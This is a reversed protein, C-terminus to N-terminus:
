SRREYGTLGGNKEELETCILEVGVQKCWDALYVDLSASVVIVRDGADLHWLLRAMAHPRLVAPLYGSAFARGQERLHNADLGRLGLWVVARRLVTGSIFGARYGVIVPLLLPYGWLQRHKPIVAGLFPSFTDLFTLTGDFDFLALNM